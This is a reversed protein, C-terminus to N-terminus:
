DKKSVDKDKPKEIISEAAVINAVANCNTCFSTATVTLVGDKVSVNYDTRLDFDQHKTKIEEKKAEFEEMTVKGYFDKIKEVETSCFPCGSWFKGSEM